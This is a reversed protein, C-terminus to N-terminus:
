CYMYPIAVVVVPRAQLLALLLMLICRLVCAVHGLYVGLSGDTSVNRCCCIGCSSCRATLQADSCGYVGGGGFFGWDTHWGECRCTCARSPLMPRCQCDLLGQISAAALLLSQSCHLLVM